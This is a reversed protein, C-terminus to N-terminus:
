QYFLQIFDILGYLITRFMFDTSDGGVTSNEALRRSWGHDSARGVSLLRLGDLWATANTRCAYHALTIARGFPKHRRDIKPTVEPSPENDFTVIFLM